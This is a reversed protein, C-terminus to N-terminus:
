ANNREKERGKAILAALKKEHQPPPLDHANSLVEMAEDIRGEALMAYARRAPSGAFFTTEYYEMVDDDDFESLEVDVDADVSVLYEEDDDPYEEMHSLFTKLKDIEIDHLNLDVTRRFGTM